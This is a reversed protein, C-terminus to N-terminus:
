STSQTCSQSTTCNVTAKTKVNATADYTYGTAVLGSVTWTETTGTSFDTTGTAFSCQGLTQGSATSTATTCSSGSSSTPAWSGSVTVGGVAVGNADVVSVTVTAGYHQSNQATASASIASVHIKKASAATTASASTSASTWHDGVLSYVAYSYTTSPTLSKDACASNLAASSCVTSSTTTDVIKYATPTAGSAPGATVTVDIETSSIATAQVTSPAALGSANVVARGAGNSNVWAAFAPATSLLVASSGAAAVLVLRKM